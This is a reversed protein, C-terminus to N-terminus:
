GMVCLYINETLKALNSWSYRSIVKQRGAEGFQACRDPYTILDIVRDAIESPKQNILYGNIGDDVVESVAPINCAVVPKGFSWAEVYVGGFSEQTSPVCLLDCASLASTKEELSVRGLHKIRPDRYHEFYKESDNVAPGIFVFNMEPIREFVIKSAELIQRYGKYKYHQGLFLLFPKRIGYKAMFQAPEPNESLVPGTGTVFIREEKVGKRILEEKEFNTLAILADAQRYLNEYTRYIFGQWRPHHVPTLVFPIGRKRAVNLSSISLPERGIRVNHILSVGEVHSDLHTQLVSSIRESAKGIAAYYLLVHPLMKLKEARSLGILHVPVNDVVYNYPLTRARLSTGLLWDTRNEDWFSVVNIEYHTCLYRALQHLYIQAGGTSPYYATSTYLFKM